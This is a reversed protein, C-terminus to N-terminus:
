GGNTATSRRNWVEHLDAGDALTYSVRLVRDARLYSSLEAAVGRLNATPTVAIAVNGAEVAEGLPAALRGLAGIHAAVHVAVVSHRPL